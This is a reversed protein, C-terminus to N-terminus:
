RGLSSALTHFAAKPSFYRLGIEAGAVGYRHRLNTDLFTSIAERIKGDDLESVLLASNPENRCWCNLSSYRPCVALIPLATATYDAMKSPFGTSTTIEDTASFSMPSVLFDAERRLVEVLEHNRVLGKNEVNYASYDFTAFNVGSYPGYVNLKGGLATLARAVAALVNRNEADHLSAGAFAAVITWGGKRRPPPPAMHVAQSASRAPYLTEGCAGYREEYNKTMQPSVCMRSQAQRYVEGFVRERWAWASPAKGLTWEDHCILHLPLAFDRALRAATIWPYGHTVTLIAEPRFDSVLRRLARARPAAARLCAKEYLPAFRTTQLRSLPLRRDEYLVGALRREPQSLQVGAEVIKLREKPYDELLRYLLASGHYSAEVPVDGIYVLRPLDRAENADGVGVSLSEGGM